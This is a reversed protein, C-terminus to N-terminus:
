SAKKLVQQVQAKKMKDFVPLFFKKDGLNELIFVKILRMYTLFVLM